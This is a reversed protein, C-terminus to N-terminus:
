ATTRQTLPRSAGLETRCVCYRKAETPPAADVLGHVDTRKTDEPADPADGYNRKRADAGAANAEVVM